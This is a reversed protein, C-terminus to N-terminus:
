VIGGAVTLVVLMPLYPQWSYRASCDHKGNIGEFLAKLCIYSLQLEVVPTLGGMLSVKTYYLIWLENLREKSAM